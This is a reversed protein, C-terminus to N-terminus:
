GEPSITHLCCRVCVHVCVVSGDWWNRGGKAPFLFDYCNKKRWLFFDYCNKKRRLFFLFYLIYTTNILKIISSLLLFKTNPANLCQSARQNDHHVTSHCKFTGYFFGMLAVDPWKIAKKSLLLNIQSFCTYPIELCPILRKNLICIHM